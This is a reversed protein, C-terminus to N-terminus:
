FERMDKDNQRTATREDNHHAAWCRRFAAMEERCQRWDGTDYHCLQLALNEADCGTKIIRADWEDPADDDDAPSAAAAAGNRQQQLTEEQPKTM